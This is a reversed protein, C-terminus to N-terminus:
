AKRKLAYHNVDQGSAETLAQWLDETTANGYQYRTLYLHLGRRFADEGLFAVLMRIISAGKSYSIADFAEDIEAPDCVEVEIPHSHTWGDDALARAYDAFLFQNWIDWKPFLHDM